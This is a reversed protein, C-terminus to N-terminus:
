ANEKLVYTGAIMDHWGQKQRSWAVWLLGLGLSLCSLLFGLERVCARLLGLPAAHTTVVRLGLLKKGITKGWLWHCLPRYLFTLLLIAM